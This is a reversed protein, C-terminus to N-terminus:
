GLDESNDDAKKKTGWYILGGAVVGVGANLLLTKWYDFERYTLDTKVQRVVYKTAVFEM